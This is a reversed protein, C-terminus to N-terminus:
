IFKIKRAAFIVMKLLLWGHRWRSINTDGYTRSRYRIPLEVIKLNMKAAGFLLDFDGFPDFNGFYNRNEALLEYDSRWMVKTGCLTDKIAQELIWTFMLSFFKNGLINFFRMAEQEMPYVLRVGNVFEGKGSAIADYFRPLDEPPVTLDADLIMLIDGTANEFGLRVADGKGKGTQQFLKCNKDPFKKIEEKITEYTNDTSHGEVFILETGSGLSPVRRLISEINGAENRAAVIVSVSPLHNSVTEQQDFGPRAVIFNTLAFWKFPIFNVLFHNCFKSLFRINLPFLIRPRWNIVEFGSLNLLNMVDNPSFWNQEKLDAGLGLFKVVSLPIRWLNNYFNIILRTHPHCLRRVNELVAQVDWLDNALDSLIIVDFKQDTVSDHADACIFSLDPHNQTANRIMEDSFDFGVGFSPQLAALLDGNGCGIELVKLGPPVFFRYYSQLLKQYYAGLRDPNVKQEAIRNWHSSRIKTYKNKLNDM